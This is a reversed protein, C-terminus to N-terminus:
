GITCRPDLWLGFCQGHTLERKESGATYDMPLGVELPWVQGEPSHGCGADWGLAKGEPRSGHGRGAEGTM